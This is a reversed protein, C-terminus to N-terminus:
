GLPAPPALFRGRPALRSLVAALVVLVAVDFAVLPASAETAALAAGLGGTLISPIFIVINNVAHVAIAAELGGTRWVLFSAVLGFALRDAFLWVDQAGHATAFTAASVGAAVVAGLRASRFLSGIAQSLWGRFLYEEGAAQLPTTLAVVLLLVAVNSGLGTPVGEVAYLAATAVLTVALSAAASVALWRWRLGGAVSSLWRPSWRHGAWVALMSLPTLAALSLNTLLLLWGEDFGRELAGPELLGVVALVVVNAVFLVGLGALVVALGVLPRWWRHAPGRLVQTYPRPTV